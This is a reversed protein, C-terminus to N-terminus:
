FYDDEYNEFVDNILSLDIEIIKFDERYILDLCKDIMECSAYNSFDEDCIMAFKKKFDLLFPSVTFKEKEFLEPCEDIFKKGNKGYIILDEVRRTELNKIFFMFQKINLNKVKNIQYFRNYRDNINFPEVFGDLYRKITKRKIYYRTSLYNL